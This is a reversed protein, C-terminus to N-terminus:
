PLAVRQHDIGHVEVVLGPEVTCSCRMGVLQVHRFAVGPRDQSVQIHLDRHFIWSGKGLGVRELAAVNQARSPLDVLVDTVLEVHVHVSQDAPLGDRV